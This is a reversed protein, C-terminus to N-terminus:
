INKLLPFDGEYNDRLTPFPISISLYRLPVGRLIDLLLIPLWVIPNIEIKVIPTYEQQAYRLTEESSCISDNNYDIKQIVADGIFKTFSYWKGDGTGIWGDGRRFTSKLVVRDEGAIKNGFIGSQCSDMIVCMGKYEIADLKEKLDDAPICDEVSTANFSAIMDINGHGAFSFLVFDNQDSNAELWDLAGLINQKTANEQHLYLMHSSNWNSASVLANYLHKPYSDDKVVNIYVFVGWYETADHAKTNKIRSYNGPGSGGVYWTKGDFLPNSTKGMLVTGSVPLVTIILLMCVLISIIKRKM